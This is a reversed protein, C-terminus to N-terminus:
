DYDKRPPNQAVIWEDYLALTTYKTGMRIRTRLKVRGGGEVKAGKTAWYYVTVYDVGKIRALESLRIMVQRHDTKPQDM